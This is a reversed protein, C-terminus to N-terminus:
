SERVRLTDASWLNLTKVNGLAEIFRTADFAQNERLHLSLQATHLYDFNVVGYTQPVFDRYYLLELMPTEFSLTTFDVLPIYIDKVIWLVTLSPSSIVGGWRWMDWTVGALELSFLAPCAALFKQFVCIQCPPTDYRVSNLILSELMPLFANRPLTRVRFDKGLKLKEM